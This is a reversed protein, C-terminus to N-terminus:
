LSTGFQSAFMQVDDKDIRQDHNINAEARKAAFYGSFAALDAGDVDVDRDFDAPLTMVHLTLVGHNPLDDNAILIPGGGWSATQVLFDVPGAPNGICELPITVYLKNAQTITALQNKSTVFPPEARYIKTIQEMDDINWYTRFTYDAGLVTDGAMNTIAQGTAPDQDTDIYILTAGDHSLEFSKYFITFLLANDGLCADLGLLEDNDLGFAGISDDAPDDVHLPAAQCTQPLLQTGTGLDWAGSDPVRDITGTIIDRTNLNSVVLAVDGSTFGLAGLPIRCIMKDNSLRVFFDNFPLGMPTIEPTGDGDEDKLLEKVNGALPDIQLRLEYDIGFAPPREETSAFGTCLRHDADMDIWVFLGDDNPYSAQNDVPQDYILVIELQDGKVQAQMRKVNPFDPENPGSVPDSVDLSIATNGPHRVLVQSSDIAFVGTDPARDFDTTPGYSHDVAWYLDMDTDYGILSLPITYSLRNGEINMTYLYATGSATTLSMLQGSITNYSFSLSAEAGVLSLSELHTMPNQDLDIAMIGSLTSPPESFTITVELNEGDALASVNTIDLYNDGTPDFFSHPPPGTFTFATSASNNARYDDSLMQFPDVIIGVYSPPETDMFPPMTIERSIVTEGGQYLYDSITEVNGLAMDEVTIQDDSSLLWQVQIALAMGPGNNGIRAQLNITDGAVGETPTAIVQGVYLDQALAIGTAFLCFLGSVAVLFKHKCTLSCPFETHFIKNKEM